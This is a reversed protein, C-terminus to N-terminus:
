KERGGDKGRSADGIAAAMLEDNSFPAIENMAIAPTSSTSVTRSGVSSGDNPTTLAAGMVVITLLALIPLLHLGQLFLVGWAQVELSRRHQEAEIRARIRQHLFPSPAAANSANNASFTRILSGLLLDTERRRGHPNDNRNDRGSNNRRNHRVWFM